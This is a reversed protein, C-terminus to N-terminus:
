FGFTLGVNWNTGAQTFYYNETTMVGDYLYSYTYGNNEYKKNFVNNVMLIISIDKFVNSSFQYRFRADTLAYPNISRLKNQSNDLYQRGVYKELLDFYFHQKSEPKTFPEVTLVAGAVTNPSFSIDTNSFSESIQGENDYDVDYQVLNKIKNRSFTANASAQLWYAPRYAATIEIGARYSNDVNIRADAGVDNIKGTAILQNKYKMYYGNIGAEFRKTNFQYGLEFDTLQEHQPAETINAEFDNRNPEKNAIAVSGYIKSQATNAHKITYSVGAKPNFFTYKGGSQLGQNKRFGEITYDVSRLQLDVFGYLNTVIQQQLKAYINFDNKSAPLNYWRYNVPVGVDAWRIFGYHKADYQTYAGGINIDTNNRSYNVSFVTGYYHNDLWLQRTLNTSTIISDGIVPNELKYDSFPDGKRYENYYGKGRTLFFSLNASWYPNFKHNLFLQYYDQQYNDTQDDYYNGNAMKGLTNTQRGALDLQDSYNLGDPGQGDFFITGIGNWAQGTKEKGSLLNFKINTMEDKSTWGALFQLSKLDSNSRQIYGSSNIKSLRVDFQFGGRLLGTGAQLTHKWTNFSGYANSISASAQKNQEINYINLSAGFAGAGNTSSGVGRQLQVSSTSSAIDGFNVFFAGQSEPDNVPIGNFTVNTRAIDTGRIRMSSYGVGVGDDSSTVVSPIQNLLYPFNQGLNQKAIEKKGINSVAFPSKENLRTSRVEVPTLLQVSDYRITDRQAFLNSGATCSLGIFMLIRKMQKKKKAM